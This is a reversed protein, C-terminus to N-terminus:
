AEWRELAGRVRKYRELLETKKTTVVVMFAVVALGLGSLFLAGLRPERVGWRVLTAVVTTVLFVSGLTVFSRVKLSVGVGVGVVCLVVCLFFAWPADFALPRFASAAYVLGVALARLRAASVEGLEKAFVQVLVLGSVGVPVLLYQGEGWGAGFWALVVAANFAVAAAVSAVRVGGRALVSYHVAVAVCVAAAMMLEGWPVFLLGAAPLWMAFHQLAGAVDGRARRAAVLGMVTAGVIAAVVEVLGPAGGLLRHAAVFGVAVAPVGLWTGVADDQSAERWAFWVAVGVAVATVVAERVFGAPALQMAAVLELLSVVRLVVGTVRHQATAPTLTPWVAVLASALAFYPLILTQPAGTSLTVGLWAFAVHSAAWVAAWGLWRLSPVARVLGWATVAALSWVVPLQWAHLSACAVVALLTVVWGAHLRARSADSERTAGLWTLGAGVAALVVSGQVTPLTVLATLSLLAVALVSEARRPTVLSLAAPALWVLGPSAPLSLAVLAVGTAWAAV